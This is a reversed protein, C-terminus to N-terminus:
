ASRASLSVRVEVLAVLTRHTKRQKSSLQCPVLSEAESRRSPWVSGNQM